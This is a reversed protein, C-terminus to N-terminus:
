EEDRQRRRQLHSRGYWEVMGATQHFTLQEVSIRIRERILATGGHRLCHPGDWEVGTPWRLEVAARKILGRFHEQTLSFLKQGHERGQSIQDFHFRTELPVVKFHVETEGDTHCRKDKRICLQATTPEDPLCDGVRLELLQSVRLQAWFGIAAAHVAEHEGARELWPLLQDQLMGRSIAGRPATAAAKKTLATAGRAATRIREDKLWEIERGQRLLHFRIAARYLESRVGQQQLSTLLATLSERNWEAFGHQLRFAEAHRWRGEYQVRTRAKVSADITGIDSAVARTVDFKNKRPM